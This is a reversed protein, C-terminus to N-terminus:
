DENENEEIVRDPDLWESNPRCILRADLYAMQLTLITQGQYNGSEQKEVVLAVDASQEDDSLCLPLLLSIGNTVHYFIPIATKYNWECRKVALSVADDLRNLLKRKLRINEKIYKCIYNFNNQNNKGNKISNIYSDLHGLDTSDCQAEIFSIPLRDINEILIHEKDWNLKKTTDFLMDHISSFYQVKGPPEALKSNLMKGLYGTGYTCFGAYKWRKKAGADSPVFCLYIAEYVNDVLGTNFVAFDNSPAIAVLDKSKACYFTYNLYQKLIFLEGNPASCKTNSNKYDWNEGCLLKEELEKLACPWNEVYAFLDIANAALKSSSGIFNVYWEKGDFHNKRGGTALAGGYKTKGNIQFTFADNYILITDEDVAKEYSKAILNKIETDSINYNDTCERYSECVKGSIEVSDLFKEKEIGKIEVAVNVNKKYTPILSIRKKITDIKGIQVTVLKKAQMIDANLQTNYESKHFLATIGPYINIFTGNRDDTNVVYGKVADGESHMSIYEDFSTSAETQPCEMVCHKGDVESEIEKGWIYDGIQYQELKKQLKSSHCLANTNEGIKVFVGFKEINVIKLLEYCEKM